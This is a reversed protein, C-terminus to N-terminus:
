KELYTGDEQYVLSESMLNSNWDSSYELIFWDDYDNCDPISDKTM